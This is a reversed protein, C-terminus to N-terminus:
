TTSPNQHDKMTTLIPPAADMVNTIYNISLLYNNSHPKQFLGWIPGVKDLTVRPISGFGVLKNNKQERVAFAWWFIWTLAKLRLGM